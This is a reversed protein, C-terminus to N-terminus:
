WWGSLSLLLWAFSCIVFLKEKLRNSYESITVWLHDYFFTSQFYAAFSFLWATHSKFLNSQLKISIASRSPHEGTFKIYIKLVGKVLFVEPDGRSRFIRNGLEWIARELILKKKVKSMLIIYYDWRKYTLDVLDNKVREHRIDRDYLFWGM